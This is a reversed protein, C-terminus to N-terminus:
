RVPLIALCYDTVVWGGNAAGRDFAAAFDVEHRGHAEVATIVARLDDRVPPAM